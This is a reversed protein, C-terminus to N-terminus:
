NRILASLFNLIDGKGRGKEGRRELFRRAAFRLASSLGFLLTLTLVAVAMADQYKSESRALAMLFGLGAVSGFLEGCLVTVFAFPLARDVSILIQSLPSRGTLGWMSQVFPFFSVLAVGLTSSLSIHGLSTIGFIPLIMPVIIPVVQTLPLLPFALDRFTKNVTLGNFVIIAIVGGVVIGGSIEALSVVVDVWIARSTLAADKWLLRFATHLVDSPRSVSVYRGVLDSALQWLIICCLVFVIVGGVSAVTMESLEGILIKGRRQAMYDFTSQFVRHLVVLTILLLVLVACFSGLREDQFVFWIWGVGLYFQSFLSFLIAQLIIENAGDKVSERWTLGCVDRMSLFCSCAFLAIAILGIFYVGAVAYDSRFTLAFLIIFPAWLGIRLFRITPRKVWSCRLILAGLVIGVFGGILSLSLVHIVFSGFEKLFIFNTM